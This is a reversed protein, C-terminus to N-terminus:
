GLGALRTLPGQRSILATTSTCWGQGYPPKPNPRPQYLAPRNGDHRRRPPFSHSCRRPNERLVKGM